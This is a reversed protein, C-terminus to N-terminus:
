LEFMKRLIINLSIKKAVSNGVFTNGSYATEEITFDVLDNDNTIDINDEVVHIKAIRKYSNVDRKCETKFENSVSSYM